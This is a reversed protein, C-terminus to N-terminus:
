QDWFNYGNKIYKVWNQRNLTRHLVNNMKFDDWQQHNFMNDENAVKYIHEKPGVM